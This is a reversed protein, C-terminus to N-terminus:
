FHVRHYSVRSATSSSSSRSRHGHSTSPRSPFHDQVGMRSSPRSDLRSSPRHHINDLASMPRRPTRPIVPMWPNQFRHTHLDEAATRFEGRRFQHSSQPYSWDTYSPIGWGIAGVRTYKPLIPPPDKEDPRYLYKLDSTGETSMAGEGIYHDDECVQARYDGLGDPGTFLIRRGTANVGPPDIYRKTVPDYAGSDRRQLYYRIGSATTPRHQRAM